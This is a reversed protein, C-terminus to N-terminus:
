DKLHSILLKDVKENIEGLRKEVQTELKTIDSDIRKIDRIVGYHTEKTKVMFDHMSNVKSVMQKLFHIIIWGVILILGNVIWNELTMEPTM